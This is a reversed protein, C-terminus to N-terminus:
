AARPTQGQEGIEREAKAWDEEHHGHTGGREEYLEYARQKIREHLNEIEREMPRQQVRQKPSNIAFTKSM